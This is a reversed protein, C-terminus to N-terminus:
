GGLRRRSWSLSTNLCPAALLVGEISLRAIAMGNSVDKDECLSDQMANVTWRDTSPPSLPLDCGESVPFQTQNPQAPLHRQWCVRSVRCKPLRTLNLAAARAGKSPKERRLFRDEASSFCRGGEVARSSLRCRRHMVQSLPASFPISLGELGQLCWQLLISHPDQLCHRQLM